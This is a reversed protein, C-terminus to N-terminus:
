GVALACSFSRTSPSCSPRRTHGAITLAIRSPLQPFLDRNHTLAIIPADDTIQKLTGVIDPQGEWFDALGALWFLKGAATIKVAQNEIVIIGAIAFAQKVRPADYWWDHNGLVAFVGHRARLDKLGVAFREPEVFSGGRVGQVV